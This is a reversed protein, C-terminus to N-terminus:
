PRKEQPLENGREKRRRYAQLAAELMDHPQVKLAGAWEVLAQTNKYSGGLMWYLPTPMSTGMGGSM